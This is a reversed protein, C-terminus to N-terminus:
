GAPQGVAASPRVPAPVPAQAPDPAQAPEPARRAALLRSRSETWTTLTRVLAARVEERGLAPGCPALGLSSAFPLERGFALFMETRHHLRARSTSPLLLMRHAAGVSVPRPASPRVLGRDAAFDLCAEVAERVTPAQPGATLWFEGTTVGGRILAAAARAVHDQPVLDVPADPDGPLVPIRGLALAGLVAAIGGTGASRGTRSDGLLVSPRLVVGPVAAERVAREAARKSELYAAAGPFLERDRPHLEGAAHATSVYYVPAGACVALDLVRRTGSVNTRRIEGPSMRWDSEAACHLVGDLRAVLEERVAPALGMGPALLDGNIERVRPDCVPNRRRLCVLDHDDALEDILAQGLVGAGGTLLLTPRPAPRTRAPPLTM